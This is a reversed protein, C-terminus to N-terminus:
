REIRDSFADVSMFRQNSTGSAGGFDDAEVAFGVGMEESPMRMKGTIVLATKPESRLGTLTLTRRIGSESEVTEAPDIDSLVIDQSSMSLYAREVGGADSVILTFSYTSDAMMNFLQTGDPASWEETPPNKMEQLGIGPGKMTFTISPKDTDTAPITADCSLLSLVPLFMLLSSLRLFPNM